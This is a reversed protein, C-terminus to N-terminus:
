VSAKEVAATAEKGDELHVGSDGIKSLTLGNMGPVTRAIQSFVDEILYVGNSGTLQQVLDRLIEWDDRADGPAAIARNLRQLRGKGNIMSGRKEAFSSAPLLVTARATTANPLIDMVILSSLKALDENSFGGQTADEGLAVLVKIEGSRVKGVIEGLRSGPQEGCVQLL